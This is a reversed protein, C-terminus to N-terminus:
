EEHQKEWANILEDIVESYTRKKGDKLSLRAMIKTLEQHTNEDIKLTKM